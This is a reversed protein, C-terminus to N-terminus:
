VVLEDAARWELRETRMSVRDDYVLSVNGSLILNNTTRNWRGLDADFTVFPRGDRYLVGNRITEIRVWGDEDAIVAADLEFQREGQHRGVVRTTSLQTRPEEPPGAARDPGPARRVSVFWVASALLVAAFAALAVTRKVGRWGSLLDSLVDADFLLRTDEGTGVAGRRAPFATIRYELWVEGTAQDWRLRIARCDADHAVYLHNRSFTMKTVDYIATVG